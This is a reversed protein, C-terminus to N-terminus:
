LATGSTGEAAAQERRAKRGVRRHCEGANSPLFSQPGLCNELDTPMEVLSSGILSEEEASRAPRGTSAAGEEELYDNEDEDSDDDDSAFDEAIAVPRLEDPLNNAATWASGSEM